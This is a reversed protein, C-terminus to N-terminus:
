YEVAVNHYSINSCAVMAANSSTTVAVFWGAVPIGPQNTVTTDLTMHAYGSAAAVSQTSAITNTSATSNATSCIGRGLELTYNTNPSLRYADVSVDVAQSSSSIKAIGEVNSGNSPSLVERAEMPAYISMQASANKGHLSLLIENMHSHEIQRAAALDAQEKKVSLMDLYHQSEPYSVGKNQVDVVGEMGETTDSIYDYVGPTTFTLSYTQHTALLGSSVPAGLVCCTHGGLPATAVASSPPPPPDNNLFRVTQPEKTEVTWTITDGADITIVSPYFSLGTLTISRTKIDGQSQTGIAVYWTRPGSYAVTSPKETNVKTKGAQSHGVTFVVTLVVAIIVALCLIGVTM